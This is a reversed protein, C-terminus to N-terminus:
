FGVRTQRSYGPIIFYHDNISATFPLSVDFIIKGNNQLFRIIKRTVSYNESVSHISIFSNDYTKNPVYTKDTYIYNESSGSLVFGYTTVSSSFITKIADTKM